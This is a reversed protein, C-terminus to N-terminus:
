SMTEKMRFPPSVLETERSFENFTWKLCLSETEVSTRQIYVPYIINPSIRFEKLVPASGQHQTSYVHQKCCGPFLSCQHQVQSIALCCHLRQSHLLVFCPPISSLGPCSPKSSTSGLEKMDHFLHCLSSFRLPFSVFSRWHGWHCQQILPLLKSVPVGLPVVLKLIPSNAVWVKLPFNNNGWNPPLSLSKPGLGIWNELAPTAMGFPYTSCGKTSPCGGLGGLLIPVILAANHSSWHQFTPYSEARVSKWVSNILM